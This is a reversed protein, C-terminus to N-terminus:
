LMPVKCRACEHSDFADLVEPKHLRLVRCLIFRM